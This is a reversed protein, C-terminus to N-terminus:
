GVSFKGDTGYEGMHWKIPKLPAAADTQEEPEILKGDPTFTYVQKVVKQADRKRQREAERAAQAQAELEEATPPGKRNMKAEKAAALKRLKAPNAPVPLTVQNIIIIM